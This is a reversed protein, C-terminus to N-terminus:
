IVSDDNYGALYFNDRKYDKKFYKEALKDVSGVPTSFRLVDHPEMVDFIDTVSLTLIHVLDAIQDPQVAMIYSIEFFNQEKYHSVIDFAMPSGDQSLVAYSLNEDIYPLMQSLEIGSSEFLDYIRKKTEGSCESITAKKGSTSKSYESPSISYVADRVGDYNIVYVGGPVQEISFEGSSAFMAYRPDDVGRAYFNSLIVFGEDSANEALLKIMSSAIGQRQYSLSVAVYLIRAIGQEENITYMIIGCATDGDYCGLGLVSPDTMMRKQQDEQLLPMFYQFNDENVYCYKMSHDGKHKCIQATLTKVIGCDCM